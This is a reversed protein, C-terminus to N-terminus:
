AGGLGEGGARAGGGSLDAHSSERIPWAIRTHRPQKAQHRRWPLHRIGDFDYADRKRGM